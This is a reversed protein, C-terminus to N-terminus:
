QRLTKVSKAFYNAFEQTEQFLRNLSSQNGKKCTKLLEIWYLTENASKLSIFLFHTFDKKTPAAQAEIFNAAISTASRLLQKAIIKGSFDHQPLSDVFVVVDRSYIILRRRMDELFRKREENM